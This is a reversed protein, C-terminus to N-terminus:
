PLRIRPNNTAKGVSAVSEPRSHLHSHAHSHGHHYHEHERIFVTEVHDAAELDSSRAASAPANHGNTKSPQGEERIAPFCGGDANTECKNAVLDATEVADVLPVSSSSTVFPPRRKCSGNGNGASKACGEGNTGAAAPDVDSLCYASYKHKCVTEGVVKDSPAHGTKVIRVHKGSGAGLLSFFNSSLHLM